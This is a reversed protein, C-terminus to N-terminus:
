RAASSNASRGSASLSPGAVAASGLAARLQAHLDGRPQVTVRELGLWGAMERLREVAARLTSAEDAGPELWASQVLLQGAARDAKLDLRAALAEGVLLMFVYYGHVRKHAPTYIEIRYRVGFMRETRPRHWIVPDFPCLLASADVRRPLPAGVDLWAPERWGAVEVAIADGADVLDLLSRKTDAISLRYYDAIDGTTGIGHHRLALRTLQRKADAEAPTPRSLVSAPVVAAYDAYQREFARRGAVAIQGTAFLYESARKTASWEWWGPRGKGPAELLKEVAGAGIPGNEVITDLVAEVLGPHQSRLAEARRWREQLKQQRWRLLPEIEIPILSAVHAWSELLLRRGAAGRGLGPWAAQDLLETPYSGLRAFAPLYHARALVNVSDIQLLGIRDLLRKLHGRNVPAPGPRARQLGQAALATRRAQAATLRRASAPVSPM